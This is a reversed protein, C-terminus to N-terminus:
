DKVTDCDSLGYLAGFGFTLVLIGVAIIVILIWPLM